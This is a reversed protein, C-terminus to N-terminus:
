GAAETGCILCERTDSEPRDLWQHDGCPGPDYVCETCDCAPHRCDAYPPACNCDPLHAGREDPGLGLRCGNTHAGGSVGCWACATGRTRKYRDCGCEPCAWRGPKDPKGPYTHGCDTCCLLKQVMEPETEASGPGGVGCAHPRVNPRTERLVSDLGVVVGAKGCGPCLSEQMWERMREQWDKPWGNGDRRALCSPCAVAPDTCTCTYDSETFQEGM